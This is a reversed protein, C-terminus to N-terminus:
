RSEGSAAASAATTPTPNWAPDSPSRRPNLCRAAHCATGAHTRGHRPPSMVQAMPTATNRRVPCRPM